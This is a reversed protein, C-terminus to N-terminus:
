NPETRNQTCILQSQYAALLTFLGSDASGCWGPPAAQHLRQELALHLHKSLPLSKHPLEQTSSPPAAPSSLLLEMGDFAVDWETRWGGIFRPALLKTAIVVPLPM